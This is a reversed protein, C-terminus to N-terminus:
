QKKYKELNIGIKELKNDDTGCVLLGSINNQILFKKGAEKGMVFVATAFADSLYAKDTIITVSMLDSVGYGTKPDIIHCYRTDDQIFFKEYDGSTAVAGNKVFLTDILAGQIRPHRIGIIKETLSNVLLDGGAEVIYDKIGNENLFAAVSDVSYGKAIGGLDLGCNKDPFYISDINYSIADFSSTKLLNILKIPNPLKPESLYNFGWLKIVPRLAIDFNRDTYNYLNHSIKLIKKLSGPVSVKQKSAEDNLKYLTSNKDEPSMENNFYKMISESSDLIENVKEKDSEYMGYATITVDTTFEVFSRSIKIKEGKSCSM